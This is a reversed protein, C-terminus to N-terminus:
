PKKSESEYYELLESESMEKLRKDLGDHKDQEREERQIDIASQIFLRLKKADETDLTGNASEIRVKQIQDALISAADNLVSAISKERVVIASEGARRRITTPIIPKKDSMKLIIFLLLAKMTLLM